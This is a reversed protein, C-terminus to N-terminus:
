VRYVRYLGRDVLIGSLIGVVWGARTVSAEAGGALALDCQCLLSERELTQLTYMPNFISFHIYPQLNIRSELYTYRPM